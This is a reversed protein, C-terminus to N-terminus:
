AAQFVSFHAHSHNWLFLRAFGHVPRLLALLPQFYHRYVQLKKAVSTQHAFYCIVEVSASTMEHTLANSVSDSHTAIPVEKSKEYPVINAKLYVNYNATMTDVM